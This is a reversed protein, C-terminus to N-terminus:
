SEYLDCSRRVPAPDDPIPPPRMFIGNEAALWVKLHGFTEELQGQPGVAAGLTM